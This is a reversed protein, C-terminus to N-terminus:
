SSTIRRRPSSSLVVPRNCRRRAKEDKDAAGLLRKQQLKSYLNRVVVALHQLAVDRCPVAIANMCVCASMYGM